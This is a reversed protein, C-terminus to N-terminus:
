GELRVGTCARPRNVSPLRECSQCRELAADRQVQGDRFQELAAFVAEYEVPSLVSYSFGEFNLYVDKMGDVKVSYDAVEAGELLDEISKIGEEDILIIESSSKLAPSRQTNAISTVYAGIKRKRDYLILDSAPIRLGRIEHNDSIIPDWTSGIAATRTLTILYFNDM